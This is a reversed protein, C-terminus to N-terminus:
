VPPTESSLVRGRRLVFLKLCGDDDDDDGGDVDDDDLDM